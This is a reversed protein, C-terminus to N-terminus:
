VNRSRSIIQLMWAGRDSARSLVHKAAQPGFMTRKALVDAWSPSVNIIWLIIGM